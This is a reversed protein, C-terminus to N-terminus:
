PQELGAFFMMDSSRQALGSEKWLLCVPDAKEGGRGIYWLENKLRQTNQLLVHM